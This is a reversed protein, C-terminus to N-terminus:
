EKHNEIYLIMDDAVLSFKVAEKRIQIDTIEKEQRIAGALDELLIKFILMRTKNRINAICKKIQCWHIHTVM